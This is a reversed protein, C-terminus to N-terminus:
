ETPAKQTVASIYNRSVKVRVKDSIELTVINETLGTVKGHLGGATIVMDGHNLKDLMERITKQKKQQPRILLFYFIAFIAVMLIIFHVDGGPSGAGGRGATGMAYALGTM